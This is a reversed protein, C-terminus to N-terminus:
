TRGGHKWYAAAWKAPYLVFVELIGIGFLLAAARVELGWSHPLLWVGFALIAANFAFGLVFSAVTLLVRVINPAYSM